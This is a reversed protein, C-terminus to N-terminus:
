SYQLENNAVLIQKRMMNLFNSEEGGQDALGNASGAGFMELDSKNQMLTKFEGSEAADAHM